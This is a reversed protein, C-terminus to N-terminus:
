YGENQVLNKNVDRERQPIPMVLRPSNWAPGNTLNSGPTTGRTRKIDHLFHGEFALELRREKLIDNLTVPAALNALGVRNRIINIDADPTNGVSTGLRFNAEARTLYMEALRIVPVHGFRDLHKRTLRRNTVIFYGRRVDAAEHLNVWAAQVDMDGRGATGAISSVTQGYYTNLGNTGDQTTIRMYFIYETPAVGGFNIFNFWLNNFIPNLSYRASAIVENALDRAAIYDEQMLAIRSLQARAAWTTAYHLNSVPLLTAARTLDAKAQAYVQAVTSRAPYNEDTLKSVEFPTSKLILPVALNTNNDGDGWAKGYLRALEFYLSGRIFLAEGEVWNKPRVSGQSLALNELILNCSNITRFANGWLSTAWGNDTLIVNSTTTISAIQLLGNFTGRFRLYARNAWLDAMLQIDGGYSSTNQLGDYAGILLGVLDSETKLGAEPSLSQTPIVDLRKNCATAILLLTPIMLLAILKHKM